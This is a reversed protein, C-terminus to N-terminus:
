KSSPPAKGMKQKLDAWFPDVNDKRIQRPPVDIYKSAPIVSEDGRALAALVRVSEM